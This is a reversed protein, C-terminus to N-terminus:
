LLRFFLALLALLFVTFLAVDVLTRHALGPIHMHVGAGIAYTPM